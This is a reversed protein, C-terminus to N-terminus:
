SHPTVVRYQQGMTLLLKGVHLADLCSKGVKLSPFGSIKLLFLM